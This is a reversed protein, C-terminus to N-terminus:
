LFFGIIFILPRNPLYVVPSQITSIWALFPWVVTICNRLATDCQPKIGRWEGRYDPKRPLITFIIPNSGNWIGSFSTTERCAHQLYLPILGCRIAFVRKTRILWAPKLTYNPIILLYHRYTLLSIPKISLCKCYVTAWRFLAASMIRLYSTWSWDTYGYLM